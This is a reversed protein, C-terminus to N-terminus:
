LERQGQGPTLPDRDALRMIRWLEAPDSTIVAYLTGGHGIRVAEVSPRGYVDIIHYAFDPFLERLARLQYPDRLVRPVRTATGAEQPYDVTFWVISAGAFREVGCTASLRDVIHLGHPSEASRALDGHWDSGGDEVEAYVYRGPFDQARVTFEGGPDGSRSHLVANASLESVLAVADDAVPCGDLYERIGARVVRVHEARGPYAQEWLVAAFTDAAATTAPMLTTTGETMIPERTPQAPMRSLEQEKHRCAAVVLVRERAAAVEGAAVAAEHLQAALRAWVDDDASM